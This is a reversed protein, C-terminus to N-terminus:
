HRGRLTSILPAYASSTEAVIRHLIEDLELGPWPVDCTVDAPLDLLDALEKKDAPATLPHAVAFDIVARACAPEGQAVLLEAFLALGDFKLVPTGLAIALALAEALVSRAREPEGRRLAIRAAKTRTWAAVARNGIGTAVQNARAAHVDAAALDGALMSVEALNALVYTLTPNLGDRECIALAERLHVEAAASDGIQLQLSALNNLCLAEEASDGLQRYQALAKLALRLSEDYHGLSKEILALHDLTDATSRAQDEASTADLAQKFYRRADTMRGLRYACTGLVNLAQVRVARDRNRRSAELARAADAEAEAYRDLRYELHSAKSLLLAHLASDAQVAPSDVGSRLLALGEEFRGRHDCYELLSKAAQALGDTRGQAISWHWARRVNEFELDIAILAARDAMSIANVMQGLMRHFYAAHAAETDSATAFAALRAAAFQQVLPHLRLRMGDRRLLSKDALAGLVPLPANAVARAAEPAFSGHFVSLRALVEREVDTLLRWSQEFVVEISAHRAPHAADSAHLLETGHRLENAIAACSLVRTWAAALELALPLGEVLRCIDVIAAAEAAPMLEPHVRRAARVFLRAADFSELRDRDEDEPCPLGELPLLWEGARALRVRSTVVAKVRPCAALLRDLMPAGEILHEFNDLVLLLGRGRLSEIAQDFPDAHGKLAVDLEHALRGGLEDVSALDDLPVFVAGDAFSASLEDIVRQALRTKGVGGPGTLSLLRCDDQSLLAAIRRVEVARGVFDDVPAARASAASGAPLAMTGISDHLARLEASPVLGLEDALRQTFDKYARRARAGQGARVLWMMYARLAADDLPDAELLRAALDIAQTADVEGALWQQASNRWATRLRDREFGLWSSWADNTDDDFGTLLESRCLQLADEIRQERLASEFAHVDTEIQFRLAGAQTELRESGPLSQLRHLAKRLNTYALGTDQEPWLLAAIEARRVWIRKLALYVLLQTRREFELTRTTGGVTITPVGFLTLDVTM